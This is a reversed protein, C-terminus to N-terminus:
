IRRQNRDKGQGRHQNARCPHRHNKREGVLQGTPTLMWCINRGSDGEESRGGASHTKDSNHIQFEIQNSLRRLTFWRM